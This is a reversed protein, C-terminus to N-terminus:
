PIKAGYVEFSDYSLNCLLLVLIILIKATFDCLSGEVERPSAKQPTAKSTTDPKAVLVCSADNPTNQDRRKKRTKKKCKTSQDKPPIKASCEEKGVKGSPQQRNERLDNQKEGQRENKENIGLSRGTPRDEVYSKKSETIQTANPKVKPEDKTHENKVAKTADMAENAAAPVNQIESPPRQPLLDFEFLSPKNFIGSRWLSSESNGEPTAKSNLENVDVMQPLKDLFQHISADLKGFHAHTKNLPLQQSSSKAQVSTHDNQRKMRAGVAADFPRPCTTSHFADHANKLLYSGSLFEHSEPSPLCNQFSYSDDSKEMTQASASKDSSYGDSDVSTGRPEFNTKVASTDQNLSAEIVANFFKWDDDDDEDSSLFDESSPYTSQSECGNSASSSSSTLSSRHRSYLASDCPMPQCGIQRKDHLAGIQLIEVSPLEGIPHVAPLMTSVSNRAVEFVEPLPLCAWPMHQPTGVWWPIKKLNTSSTSKSTPFNTSGKEQSVAPMVMPLMYVASRKKSHNSHGDKSLYQKRVMSSSLRAKGKRISGRRKSKQREFLSDPFTGQAWM